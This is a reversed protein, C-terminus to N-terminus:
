ETRILAEKYVSTYGSVIEELSFRQASEFCDEAMNRVDDIKNVVKEIVSHLADVNRPQVLFGTKEEYVTEPIGGIRTAIVPKGYSYAEVIVIGFVEPVHSPVVLVDCESLLKKKLDGSVFGYFIIQSHTKFREHLSVSDPGDGAVHLRLNSYSQAAKNFAMCLTGIGKTEDLRGMYLFNISADERETSVKIGNRNISLSNLTLGHSNPIVKCMAKRFFSRSVHFDLTYQSPATAVDVVSSLKSRIWTYPNLLGYKRSVINGVVGSLTGQPSVLEYDHCTHILAKVGATKAATWVAPSLGRLKHVHVIDPQEEEIIRRVVQYTHYNWTDLFQWIIKKELSQQDKNGIWYLNRPLFRYVVLGDITERRLEPIPHTTVIVVEMGQDVLSKALDRVVTVAGGGVDNGYLYSVLIVKNM